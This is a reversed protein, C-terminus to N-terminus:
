RFSRSWGSFQVKVSEVESLDLATNTLPSLGIRWTAFPGPLAYSPDVDLNGDVSITKTAIEYEYPFQLRDHTFRRTENNVSVIKESGLQQLNFRLIGDDTKAGEIYVRMTSIRVDAKGAFVNDAMRTSKSAADLTFTTFYEGDPSSPTTKLMGIQWTNLTVIKALGSSGAAVGFPQRGTGLSEVENTFDMILDGQLTKLQAGLSTSPFGQDRLASLSVTGSTLAWFTLARQTDYLLELVKATYDFYSSKITNALAPIQSNETLAEETGLSHQDAVYSDLKAKTQLYVAIVNNYHMVQNNRQVVTQVYDDFMTKFDDADGGIANRYKNVLDMVDSEQGLLKTAGPDDVDIVADNADLQLAEKLGDVGSALQHIQQVVYSKEVANGANDRIQTLSSNLLTAGQVAAMEPEPCFAMQGAASLFDKMSPAEAQTKIKDAIEDLKTAVAARKRPVDEQLSAIRQATSVLDEDLSALDHRAQEEGRRAANLAKEVQESQKANDALLKQYENYNNEVADFDVMISDLKKQYFNYNARPVWTSAHQYFDYGQNIRVMYQNALRLNTSLTNFASSQGPLGSPLVALTDYEHDMYAQYLKDTPKVDQLFGLRATLDKLKGMADGISDQTGILYSNAIDQMTASVQAPHFILENGAVIAQTSYPGVNVVGERGKQGSAVRKDSGTVLGGLGPMGARSGVSSLFESGTARLTQATVAM